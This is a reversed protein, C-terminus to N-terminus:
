PRVYSHSPHRYPHLREEGPCTGVCAQTADTQPKFSATSAIGFDTGGPTLTATNTLTDTFSIQTFDTIALATTGTTTTFGTVDLSGQALVEAQAAGPAGAVFFGAAALACATKNLKTM